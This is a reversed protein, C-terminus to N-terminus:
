RTYARVMRHKAGHMRQKKMFLNKSLCQISRQKCENGPTKSNERFKVVPHENSLTNKEFIEFNLFIVLVIILLWGTHSIKLLGGM